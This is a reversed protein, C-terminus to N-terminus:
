RVHPKPRQMGSIEVGGPENGKPSLRKQRLRNKAAPGFSVPMMGLEKAKAVAIGRDTRHGLVQADDMLFRFPASIAEVAALNRAPFGSVHDLYAASLNLVLPPMQSRLELTACWAPKLRRFARAPGLDM